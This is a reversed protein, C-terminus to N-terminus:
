KSTCYGCAKPCNPKMWDKYGDNKCYGFSAFAECSGDVDNCGKSAFLKPIFNVEIKRDIWNIAWLTSLYEHWFLCKGKFYVKYAKSSIKNCTTAGYCHVGNYSVFQCNDKCLNQCEMLTAAKRALLDSEKCIHQGLDAWELYILHSTSLCSLQWYFEHYNLCM